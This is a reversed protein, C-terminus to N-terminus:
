SKLCEQQEIDRVSETANYRQISLKILGIYALNIGQSRPTGLFIVISGSLRLASPDKSFLRYLFM